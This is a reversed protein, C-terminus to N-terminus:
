RHLTVSSVLRERDEDTAPIGTEQYHKFGAAVKPIAGELESRIAWDNLLEGFWGWPMEYRLTMTVRTSLDDVPAIQYQFSAASFPFMPKDDEHLRMTYGEGDRWETVTENTYDTEGFYVKRSAGEGSIQETTIETRTLDEVYNHPLSYDSLRTWVQDVPLEVIVNVKVEHAGVTLSLSMLAMFILSMGSSVEKTIAFFRSVYERM